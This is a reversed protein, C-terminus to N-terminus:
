FERLVIYHALERLHQVGDGLGDLADLSRQLLEKLLIKAQDVGLLSTYTSKNLKADAGVRKGLTETNSLEDLIDDAVQFALGIASGYNRLARLCQEDVDGTSLAGMTVSATILAGTKHSHMTELYALNVSNKTAALDMAQGLVMGAAGSATALEKILTLIQAPPLDKILSLKEFAMTQLADGALIATAEDFAKHCTPRGRRLDDDDMGPLDDHILSYSHILEVACAVSDTADTTKGTVAAGAYVLSPRVRKGAGLTAYRIAEILHPHAQSGHLAGSDPLPLCNELVPNIRTRCRDLFAEGPTM